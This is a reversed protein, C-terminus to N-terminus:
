VSAIRTRNYDPHYNEPLEGMRELFEESHTFDSAPMCVCESLGTTQILVPTRKQPNNEIGPWFFDPIEKKGTRMQKLYKDLYQM